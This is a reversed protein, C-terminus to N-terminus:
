ITIGTLETIKDTLTHFNADELAHLITEIIPKFTWKHYKAVIVGLVEADSVTAQYEARYFTKRGVDILDKLISNIRTEVTETEM